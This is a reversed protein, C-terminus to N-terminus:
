SAPLFTGVMMEFLRTIEASDFITIAGLSYCGPNGSHVFLAIEYRRDGRETVYSLKEYRNGAAGEVLYRRAFRIGSSDRRGLGHGPGCPLCSGTGKSPAPSCDTVGITVSFAILNTKAGAGDISPDYAPVFTVVAGEAVLANPVKAVYFNPPYGIQFRYENNWYADWDTPEDWGAALSVPTMDLLSCDMGSSIGSSSVPSLPALILLLTIAAKWVM